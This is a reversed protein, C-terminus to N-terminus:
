PAANRPTELQRLLTLSASLDPLKPSVPQQQMGGLQQLAAGVAKNNPDFYAALWNHASVVSDHFAPGEHDLLAARATDLKLELNLRLLLEERPSLLPELPQSRHRLTFMDDLLRATAAKFRQWLNPSVEAPAAGTSGGPVYHEPVSRKLPLNGVSEALGTLAVAMGEIDAQPVARLANIERTIEQRVAILRPDSLLKLRADAQQLAKIALSPDARIETEENADVLLSAAEAKIWADRGEESHKRMDNLSSDLSDLRDAEAKLSQQVAASEADLASKQAAAQQLAALDQNLTALQVDRAEDERRLGYWNIAALLLAAAGLLLAVSVLMPTQTHPRAPAQQRGSTKDPAASM